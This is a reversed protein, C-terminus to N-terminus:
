SFLLIGGGGGGGGMESDMYSLDDFLKMRISPSLM